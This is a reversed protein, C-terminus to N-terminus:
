QRANRGIKPQRGRGDEEPKMKDGLYRELFVREVGGKAFGERIVGLREKRLERRQAMRRLKEEIEKDHKEQDIWKQRDGMKAMNRLREAKLGGRRARVADEKAESFSLTEVKGAALDDWFTNQAEWRANRLASKQKPNTQRSWTRTSVQLPIHIALLNKHHALFTRFHATSEPSIATDSTLPPPATYLHTKYFLSFLTQALPSRSFSLPLSPSRSSVPDVDEGEDQLCCSVCCSRDACAKTTEEKSERGM